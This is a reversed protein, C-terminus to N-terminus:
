RRASVLRSTPRSSVSRRLRRPLTDIVNPNATLLAVPGALMWDGTEIVYGYNFTQLAARAHQEIWLTAVSTSRLDGIVHLIEKTTLPAWGLGPEDLMLLDPKVMLAHGVALTPQEGGSLTGAAQKCREKLRPFM